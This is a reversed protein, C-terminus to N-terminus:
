RPRITPEFRAGQASRPPSPFPSSPIESKSDGYGVSFDRNPRIFGLFDLANKRPNEQIRKTQSPLIKGSRRAYAKARGWEPAALPRGIPQFRRRFM